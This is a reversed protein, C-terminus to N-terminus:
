QGDSSGSTNGLSPDYASGSAGTSSGNSYAQCCLMPSIMVESAAAPSRM